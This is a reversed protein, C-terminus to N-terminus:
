GVFADFGTMTPKEVSDLAILTKLRTLITTIKNFSDPDKMAMNQLGQLLKKDVTEPKQTLYFMVSSTAEPDDIAHDHIKIALQGASDFGFTILPTGKKDEPGSLLIQSDSYTTVDQHM